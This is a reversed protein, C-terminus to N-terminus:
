KPYLIMVEPARENEMTFNYGNELALNRIDYITPYNLHGRSFDYADDIAILHDKIGYNFIIELEDLIPTGDKGHADLWIFCRDNVEELVKPIFSLCSGKEIKIHKPSGIKKYRRMSKNHWRGSIEVSHLREFKDKMAFLTKGERTGTELFINIDKYKDAWNSLIEVKEKQSIHHTFVEIGMRKQRRGELINRRSHALYNADMRDTMIKIEKDNM